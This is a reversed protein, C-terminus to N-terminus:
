MNDKSSAQRTEISMVVKVVCIRVDCAVGGKLLIILGGTTLEELGGGCGEGGAGEEGGGQGEGFYFDGGLGGFVGEGGVPAEGVVVFSVGGLDAGVHDDGGSEGLTRVAHLVKAFIELLFHDVKDTIVPTKRLHRTLGAKRRQVGRNINQSSM